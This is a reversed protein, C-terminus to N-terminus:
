RPLRDDRCRVERIAAVVAVLLGAAFLGIVVGLTSYLPVIFGAYPGTEDEGFDWWYASLLGGVLGGIVAGGVLVAAVVWETV